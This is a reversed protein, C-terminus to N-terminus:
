RTPCSWPLSVTSGDVLIFCNGDQDRQEDLTASRVTGHPRDFMNSFPTLLEATAGPRTLDRVVVRRGTLRGGPVVPTTPEGITPTPRSPQCGDIWWTPFAAPALSRGFPMDTIYRRAGSSDRVTVGDLMRGPNNVRNFWARRRSPHRASHLRALSRRSAPETPTLAGSELESMISGLESVLQQLWAHREQIYTPQAVHLWEDDRLLTDNEFEWTRGEEVATRIGTIVECVLALYQQRIDAGPGANVTPGTPGTPGHSAGSAAGPSPAASPTPEVPRPRNQQPQANATPNRPNGSNQTTTLSRGTGSRVRNRIVNRLVRRLVAPMPLGDVARDLAAAVDAYRTLAGAVGPTHTLGVFDRPMQPLEPPTGAGASEELAPREPPPPPEPLNDLADRGPYIIRLIDEDALGLSAPVQDRVLRVVERSPQSLERPHRQAWETIEITARALVQLGDNDFLSQPQRPQPFPPRTQAQRAIMRPASSIAPVRSFDHAFGTAPAINSTENLRVVNTVGPRAPTTSAPSHSQRHTFTRM